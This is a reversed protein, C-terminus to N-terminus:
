GVNVDGDERNANQDNFVFCGPPGSSLEYVNMYAATIVSSSESKM